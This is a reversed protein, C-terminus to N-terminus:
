AQFGDSIAGTASRPVPLAFLVRLSAVFCIAGLVIAVITVCWQVTESVEGFKIIMRWLNLGSNVFFHCAITPGISGTRWAIVGFYFGLITAFLVVHPMVHALGFLVSAVSIGTWPGWRAVLRQQIYGRFLMEECFGPVLGIVLVFPGAWALTMQAYLQEATKDVPISPVYEALLQALGLGVALPFISGIMTLCYVLGPRQVPNFGLRLRWPEPSAIAASLSAVGFAGPGLIVMVIFFGTNSSLTLMQHSLQDTTSGQLLLVVAVIVVAAIQLGFALALSAVLTLAVTWVRPQAPPNSPPHSSEALNEVAPNAPAAYPNDSQESPTEM